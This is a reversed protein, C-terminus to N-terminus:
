TPYCVSRWDGGGAPGSLICHVGTQSAEALGIMGGNSQMVRLSCGSFSDGFISELRSLYRELVPSVYANVVTTSTREYERFEPLIECSATAFYGAQRFQKTIELEHIPNLFSFLLCIAISEIDLLQLHNVLSTIEDLNLDQIVNGHHDIRETIELRLEAPVLPDAIKVRLDYLYPRNQRGIQLIDRFGRTTILATKSGRRTLLANTAVTSGHVVQIEVRKGAYKSQLQKSIRRIGTEIAYAPDQHNSFLKFSSLSQDSQDFLVFDTFTGGVDIGIQVSPYCSEIM